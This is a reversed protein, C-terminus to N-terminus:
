KQMLGVVSAIIQVYNWISLIKLPNLIFVIIITATAM